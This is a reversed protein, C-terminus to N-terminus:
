LAGEAPPTDGLPLFGRCRLVPIPPYRPFAPDVAALRCLFFRSGANSEVVRCNVCSGCLGPPPTHSRMLIPRSGSSRGGM